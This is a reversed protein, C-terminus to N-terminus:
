IEVNSLEVERALQHLRQERDITAQTPTLNFAALIKQWRYVWDHKLLSNVVNRRRITALKEPKSDLQALTAIIDQSDPPVEIVVDEWDFYKPFMENAPPMGLMITGAAAGEFYRFGIEQSNQTYVPENFKAFYNISFRSRKMLNVLMMRHESPNDIELAQKKVTDYYYFFNSHRAHEILSRHIEPSRRGLAIVDIGREPPNPYPCFKLADAGGPIYIVPRDIAKSLRDNCLCMCSFVIDFNQFPEQLLRWNNLGPSHFETLLCAKYRCKEQWGQISNILQLDWANHVIILLLDYEHEIIFDQPYPTIKAALRDSRGIYKTLRYIKRMLNHTNVPAFLDADDVDCILDEFEYCGCSAAASNLGRSSVVLIRAPRKDTSRDISNPM